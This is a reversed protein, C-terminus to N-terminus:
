KDRKMRKVAKVHERRKQRDTINAKEILSVLNKVRDPSIVPDTFGLIYNGLKKMPMVNEPLKTMLKGSAFAVISYINKEDLFEKLAMVHGYNQRLPNMFRYKSNKNLVQTWQRDKEKGYIFGSFNKTEIVFIGYESLVIHDIQTTGNNNQIMIDKLIFYKDQPLRYLFKNVRKEGILGRLKPLLFKVLVIFLLAPLAFKLFPFMATIISPTDIM